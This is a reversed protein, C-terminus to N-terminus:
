YVTYSNLLSFCIVMNRKQHMPKLVHSTLAVIYNENIIEPYAPVRNENIIKSDVTITNM